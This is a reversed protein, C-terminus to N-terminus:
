HQWLIQEAELPVSIGSWSPILRATYDTAPRTAPVSGVYAHSAPDKKSPGQRLMEQRTAPVGNGPDAFLEIRVAEPDLGPLSVEVTFLHRTEKTEVTIAGFRLSPWQSQLAQKWQTM